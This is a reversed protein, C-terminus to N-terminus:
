DKLVAWPKVEMPYEKANAPYDMHYVRNGKTIFVTCQYADSDWRVVTMTTSDKDGDLAAAGATGMATAAVMGAAFAVLLACVMMVNTKM